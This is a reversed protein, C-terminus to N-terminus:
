YDDDDLDSSDQALAQQLRSLGSSPGSGGDPSADGAETRHHHGSSSQQQLQVIKPFEDVWEAYVDIPQTLNHIHTEFSVPCSKCSLVGRTNGVDRDM